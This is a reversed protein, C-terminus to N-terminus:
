GARRYKKFKTNPYEDSDEDESRRKANTENDTTSPEINIEPIPHIIEEGESM